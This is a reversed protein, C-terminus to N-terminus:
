GKLEKMFKKASACGLGIAEETLQKAREIDEELLCGYFYARALALKAYPNDDQDGQTLIAIDDSSVAFPNDNGLVFTIFGFKPNFEPETDGLKWNPAVQRSVAFGNQLAFNVADALVYECDPYLKFIDLSQTNFAGITIRDDLVNWPEIVGCIALAQILSIVSCEGKYKELCAAVLQRESKYFTAEGDEVLGWQKKSKFLQLTPYGDLSFKEDLLIQDRSIQDAIQIQLLSNDLKIKRVKKYFGEEYFPQFEPASYSSPDESSEEFMQQYAEHRDSERMMRVYSKAEECDQAIAERLLNDARLAGGKEDQLIGMHYEMALEYQAIVNGQKVMEEYLDVDAQTSPLDEQTCIFYSAEFKDNFEHDDNPFDADDWETVVCRYIAITEKLEEISLGALGRSGFQNDELVNIEPMQPFDIVTKDRYVNSYEGVGAVTLVQQLIEPEEGLLERAQDVVQLWTGFPMGPENRLRLKKGKKEVFLAKPDDCTSTVGFYQDALLKDKSIGNVYYIKIICNQPFRDM